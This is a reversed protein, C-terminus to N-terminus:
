KQAQDFFKLDPAPQGKRTPMLYGGNIFYNEKGLFVHQNNEACVYEFWRPKAAREYSRTVTWPRTLAHDITTVEDHLLSPNARDLYIREKVISQNDAHLPVAGDFTRPGKMARTEILLADYRGDGDTDEWRGISYGAYTPEVEEPWDRGDTYVRRLQQMFEILIYTADPTIVIEMPEYVIMARPMGPPLCTPTSNNGQGGARQNALGAEMLARYEETLPAQQGPGIPKGPDWGAGGCCRVWQGRWDPFAKQELAHAGAITLTAAALTVAAVPLSWSTSM